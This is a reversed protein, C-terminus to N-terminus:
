RIQSSVYEQYISVIGYKKGSTKHYLIKYLVNYSVGCTKSYDLLGNVRVSTGDLYIIIYQTAL